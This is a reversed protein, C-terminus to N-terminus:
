VRTVVMGQMNTDEVAYTPGNVNLIASKIKNKLHISTCMAEEVMRKVEPSHSNAWTETNSAIAANCISLLSVAEETTLELKIKTM